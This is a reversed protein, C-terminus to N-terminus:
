EVEAITQDLRVVLRAVSIGAEFPVRQRAARSEADDRFESHDGQLRGLLVSRIVIAALLVAVTRATRLAQPRATMRVTGNAM